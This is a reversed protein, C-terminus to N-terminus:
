DARVREIRERHVQMAVLIEDPRLAHSEESPTQEERALGQASGPADAVIEFNDIIIPM